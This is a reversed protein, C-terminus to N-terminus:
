QKTFEFDPGNKLQTPRTEPTSGDNPAAEDGFYFKDDKIAYILYFTDGVTFPIESTATLVEFDLETATTIADISGDVTVDNGFRLSATWTGTQSQTQCAADSFSEVLASSTRGNYTITALESTINDVTECTSKWTGDLGANSGSGGGTALPAGEDAVTITTETGGGSGGCGALGLITACAILIKKM